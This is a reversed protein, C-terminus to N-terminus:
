KHLRSASYEIYQSGGIDKWHFALDATVVVRFETYSVVKLFLERNGMYVYANYLNAM